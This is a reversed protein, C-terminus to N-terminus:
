CPLPIYYRLSALLALYGLDLAAISINEYPKQHFIEGLGTQKQLWWIVKKYISLLRSVKTTPISYSCTCLVASSQDSGWYLFFVEPGLLPLHSFGKMPTKCQHAIHEPVPGRGLRTAKTIRGWSRGEWVCDDARLSMLMGTVPSPIARTTFLYIAPTAKQGGPHCSNHLPLRQPARLHCDTKTIYPRGAMRWWIHGEEMEGLANELDWM